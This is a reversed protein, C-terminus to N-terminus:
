DETTNTNFEEVNNEYVQEVLSEFAFWAMNNKYTAVCLGDKVINPYFEYEKALELIADEFDDYFQNTETYYILGSVGGGSCIADNEVYTEIDEPSYGGTNHKILSLVAQELTGFSDWVFEEKQITM